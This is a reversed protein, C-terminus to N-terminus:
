GPPEPLVHEKKYHVPNPRPQEVGSERIANGFLWLGVRYGLYIPIAVIALVCIMGWIWMTDADDHRKDLYTERMAVVEQQVVATGLGYIIPRVNLPSTSVSGVGQM